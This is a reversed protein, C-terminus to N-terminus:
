KSKKISILIQGHHNPLLAVILQHSLQHTHTHTYHPFEPGATAPFYTPCSKTKPHRTPKSLTSSNTLDKSTQITNSISPYLYYIMQNIIPIPRKIGDEDTPNSTTPM